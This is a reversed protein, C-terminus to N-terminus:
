YPLNVNFSMSTKEVKCGSNLLMLLWNLLSLKNTTEWMLSREFIFSHLLAVNELTSIFKMNSYKQTIIYCISLFMTPVWCLKLILYQVFQICSTKYEIDNQHEIDNIIDNQYIFLIKEIDKWRWKERGQKLTREEVKNWCLTKMKKPGFFSM